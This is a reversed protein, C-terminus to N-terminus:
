RHQPVWRVTSLSVVALTTFYLFGFAILRQPEDIWIGSGPLDQGEMAASTVGLRPVPPVITLFVFLVYLGATTAWERNMLQKEDNSFGGGLIVRLLRNLTLGWFAILPWPTSFALSFSGAFVSYLLGFGLITGTKRWASTQAIAVSGMFAASHIVIFELLMLLMLHRVVREGLANPDIWTILFAIGLALDPLAAIVSATVRGVHKFM